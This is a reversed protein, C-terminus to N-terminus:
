NLLQRFRENSAQADAAGITATWHRCILEVFRELAHAPAHAWEPFGALWARAYAPEGGCEMLRVATLAADVWAPGTAPMAWDVLYGRTETILLNHPNTTRM